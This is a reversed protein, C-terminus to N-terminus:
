RENLITLPYKYGVPFLSKKEEPGGSIPTPLAKSAKSSNGANGSKVIGRGRKPPM